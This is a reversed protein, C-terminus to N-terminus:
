KKLIFAYFKISHKRHLYEIINVIHDIRLIAELCKTRTLLRSKQPRKAVSKAPLVRSDAM